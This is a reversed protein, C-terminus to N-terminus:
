AILGVTRDDIRAWAVPVDERTKAGRHIDSAVKNGIGKECGQRDFAATFPNTGVAVIMTERSEQNTMRQLLEKRLFGNGNETM